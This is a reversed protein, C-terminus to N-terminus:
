QQHQIFRECPVQVVKAEPRTRKPDRGPMDFMSLIWPTLWCMSGWTTLDSAVWIVPGPLRLRWIMWQNKAICLSFSWWELLFIGFLYATHKWLHFILVSKIQSIHHRTEPQHRQPLKPRCPVQGYVYNGPFLDWSRPPTHHEDTDGAHHVGWEMNVVIVM